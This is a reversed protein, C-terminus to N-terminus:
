LLEKRIADSPEVEHDRYWQRATKRLVGTWYYEKSELFMQALIKAPEQFDLTHRMMDEFFAQITDRHIRTTTSM